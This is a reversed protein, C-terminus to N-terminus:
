LEMTRVTTNKEVEIHWASEGEPKTIRIIFEGPGLRDIMRGIRVARTSLDTVAKVNQRELESLLRRVETGPTSAGSPESM